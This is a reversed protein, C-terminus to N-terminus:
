AIPVYIRLASTDSETVVTNNGVYSVNFARYNYGSWWGEDIKVSATTVNGPRSASNKEDVNQWGEPRYQYGSAITIVSGVPLQNVDYKETTAWFNKSNNQDTILATASGSGNTSNYYACVVPTMKLVAYKAPDLGLNTLVTKDADTLAETISLDKVVTPLTTTSDEPETTGGAPNVPTKGAKLAYIVFHEGTEMSVTASNGKVAVNFGVYNHGNWWADNVYEYVYTNNGRNAPKTGLTVFREPRYQYGDDIRIISGTPIESKEILRTALFNHLNNAINGNALCLMTSTTTSTSNYYAYPTYGLVVKEFNDPNLGLGTLYAKDDATLEKSEEAAEVIPVYIRLALRDEYVVDGGEVKSINFARFNYTAYWSEDVIACQTSNAPREGSQATALKEWGEPRYQYGEKIYIVSGVPLEFVSFVDTAIYQGSNAASAVPTSSKKSSDWYSSFKYGLDLVEYKAPDKGLSQLYTKDADTMELDKNVYETKTSQTVAFPNAYAANVAEKIADLHEIVDPYEGPIRDIGNIDLGTLQKLWMLATTYRGIGYSMHYGDRTLTDGLYSTRLNQVATGSPIFGAIKDNGLIDSKVADVIANYMTTQNKDYNAFGSHTSTQQYAWTMHWYIKANENMKETEIFELLKGLLEFTEPRGSDQSVQQITIIDWDEDIIVNSLRENAKEEWGDGTNKYYTYAAANQNINAVHTQISCGGIYMNGLVIEEIGAAKAVLALHEMADVSFSNGIALVKLSKVASLTEEVKESCKTCTKEIKGDATTTVQTLVNVTYAHACANPDTPKQTTSTTGTTTGNTTGQTTGQTSATTKTDGLGGCSALIMVFALVLAILSTIKKM